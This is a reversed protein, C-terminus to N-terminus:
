RNKFTIEPYFNDLVYDLMAPMMKDELGFSPGQRNTHADEKAFIQFSGFRM